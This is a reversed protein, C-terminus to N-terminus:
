YDFFHKSRYINEQSFVIDRLHSEITVTAHRLAKALLLEQKTLLVEEKINSNSL